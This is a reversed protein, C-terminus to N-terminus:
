VFLILSLLVVHPRDRYEAAPRGRVHLVCRICLKPYSVCKTNSRTGKVPLRRVLIRSKLTNSELTIKTKLPPIRMGMLCNGFLKLCAIKTPLNPTGM